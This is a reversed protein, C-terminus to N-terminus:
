DVLVAGTRVTQCGNDGFGFFSLGTPSNFKGYKEGYGLLADIQV